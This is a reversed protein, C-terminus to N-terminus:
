RRVRVVVVVVVVVCHLARAKRKFNLAGSIGRRENACPLASLLFGIPGRPFFSPLFSLLLRRRAASPPPSPPLLFQSKAGVVM